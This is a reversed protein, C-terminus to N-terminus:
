VLRLLRLAGVVIGAACSTLVALIIISFGLAFAQAMLRNEWPQPPEAVVLEGATTTVKDPM